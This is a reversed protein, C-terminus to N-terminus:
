VYELPCGHRLSHEAAQQFLAVYFLLPDTIAMTLAMPGSPLVISATQCPPVTRWAAEEDAAIRGGSAAGGCGVTAEPLSPHHLEVHPHGAPLHLAATRGEPLAGLHRPPQPMGVGGLHRPEIGCEVVADGGRNIRNLVMVAIRASWQSRARHGRDGRQMTAERGFRNGSGPEYRGDDRSLFPVVVHVISM